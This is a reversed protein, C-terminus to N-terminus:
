STANNKISFHYTEMKRETGLIFGKWYHTRLYRNRDQIQWKEKSSHTGTSKYDQRKARWISDLTRKEM